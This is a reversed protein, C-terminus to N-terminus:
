LKIMPATHVVVKNEDLLRIEYMGAPLASLDLNFQVAKSDQIESQVLQGVSNYVQVFSLPQKSEIIVLGQTPNPYFKFNM